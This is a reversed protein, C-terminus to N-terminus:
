ATKQSRIQPFRSKQCVRLRAFIAPPLPGSADSAAWNWCAKIATQAARQTTKGLKVDALNEIWDTLDNQTVQNYPLDGITPGDARARGVEFDCWRELFHRRQKYTDVSRNKQVWDLHRDCVELCTVVVQRNPRDDLNKLHDAFAKQATKYPVEDVRGFYVEKGGAKTMWYGNKKRLKAPRPM